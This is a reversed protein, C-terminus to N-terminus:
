PNGGQKPEGAKWQVPLTKEAVRGDLSDGPRPEVMVNARLADPWYGAHFMRKLYGSLAVRNLNIFVTEDEGAGVRPVHREEVLFPVVWTGQGEGSVRKLRASFAYRLLVATETRPSANKLKVAIRPRVKVTPNPPFLWQGVDHFASKPNRVDVALQWGLDEIRVEAAGPLACLGLGVVSLAAAIWKRM